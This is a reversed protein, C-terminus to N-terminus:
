NDCPIPDGLTGNKLNLLQFNQLNTENKNVKLIKIGVNHTKVFKLFNLEAEEIPTNEDYLADMLRTTKDEEDNLFALHNQGFRKFQDIDQITITYIFGEKNIMSYTFEKYNAYPENTVPNTSVIFQYIQQLDGESFLPLSHSGPHSHVIGKATTLQTIVSHARNNHPVGYDKPYPGADLFKYLNERDMNPNIAEQKLENFIYNVFYKEKLFKIKDCPEPNGNPIWGVGPNPPPCPPLPNNPAEQIPSSTGITPICPYYPPIAIGGGGGASGTLVPIGGIPIEGSSGPGMIIDVCIYISCASCGDMWDSCGSSGCTCTHNLAAQNPQYWCISTTTGSVLANKFMVEKVVSITDINGSQFISYDTIKFKKTGFLLYDFYMFFSAYEIKSVERNDIPDKEYNKYYEALCYNLRITDDIVARIFGNTQKEGEIVIPVYIYISQGETLINNTVNFKDIVLSKQWIPFGMNEAFHNVFPIKENLSKIYDYVRIVHPNLGNQSSFFKREVDLNNNSEISEIKKCSNNILIFYLFFILWSKFSYKKM